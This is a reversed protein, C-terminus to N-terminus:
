RHCSEAIEMVRSPAIGVAQSIMRLNQITPSNANHLINYVTQRTVGSEEAIDTISKGSIDAAIRLVTGVEM